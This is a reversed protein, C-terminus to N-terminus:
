YVIQDAWCEVCEEGLGRRVLVGGCCWCLGAFKDFDFDHPFKVTSENRDEIESARSSRVPSVQGTPHLTPSPPPNSRQPQLYIEPYKVSISRERVSTEQTPPSDTQISQQSADGPLTESHSNQRNPEPKALRTMEAILFRLNPRPTYYFSAPLPLM